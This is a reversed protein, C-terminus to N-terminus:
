EKKTEDDSIEIVTREGLAEDNAPLSKERSHSKPSGDNVEGDPLSINSGESLARDLRKYPSKLPSASEATKFSSDSRMDEGDGIGLDISSLNREMRLKRARREALRTNAAGVSTRNSFETSMRLDQLL